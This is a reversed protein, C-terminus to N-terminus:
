RGILEMALPPVRMLREGADVTAYGLCAETLKIVHEDGHAVAADILAAASGVPLAARPREAEGYCAYLAAGFRWASGFLVPVDAPAAWPALRAAAVVGTIAHTYVIAQLATRAQRMFLDAFASALEASMAAATGSSDFGALAEVFPPDADLVRLAETIPGDNRRREAPVLPVARWAAEAPVPRSRAAVAAAPLAQWSSAWLALGRALEARRPASEHRALARVAHATRIIGHAAAGAFGPALRGLWDALVAPWDHTAIEHEFTARWDPYTSTRGIAAARREAALPMGTAPEALAAPLYRDLWAHAADARGLSWLADVVMPAHNTLGNALDPGCHLTRALIEDYLDENPEPQQQTGPM